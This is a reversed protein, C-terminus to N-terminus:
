QRRRCATMRAQCDPPTLEGQGGYSIRAANAEDIDIQM